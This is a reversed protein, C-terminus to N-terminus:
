SIVETMYAKRIGTDVISADELLTRAVNTLYVAGNPDQKNLYELVGKASQCVQSHYRPKEPFIGEPNFWVPLCRQCPVYDGDALNEALEPSLHNREVVKCDEAHFLMSYGVRSVVYVGSYTKFLKFEIWRDKNPAESSSESLLEGEIILERLGDRVKYM